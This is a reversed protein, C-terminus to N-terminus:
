SVKSDEMLWRLSGLLLIKDRVMAPVSEKEGVHERQKGQVRQGPSGTLM